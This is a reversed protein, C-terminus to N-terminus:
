QELISFSFKTNKNTLLVNPLVKFGIVIAMIVAFGCMISPTAAITAPDLLNVTTTPVLLAAYGFAHWRLARRIKIKKANFSLNLATALALIELGYYYIAYTYMTGPVMDFIVYNGYCAPSSANHSVFAFFTMFLGAAIYSGYTVVKNKVGAIEYTMHMGLAPLLTIAVFGLRTWFLDSIGLMGECVSYEAFQFVALLVFIGLALQLVKNSRYKWAAWLALGLEIVITAVM